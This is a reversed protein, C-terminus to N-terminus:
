NFLREVEIYNLILYPIFSISTAVAAWILWFYNIFIINLLINLIISLLLNYARKSALWNYDLVAWFLLSFSFVVAYPFLLYLIKVSEVYESGFLLTILYYGLIYITAWLILYIYLNFRFLKYFFSKLQKKNENNLKAFIPMAWMVLIISIHPFKTVIQKAVSYIAVESDWLMLWIIITDIEIVVFFWASILFLPISYSFVKSIYSWSIITRNLKGFKMLLIYIWILTTLFLSLNFWNIISVFSDWISFLFIIFLVKLFNEFFTIIFNLKINHLGNFVEKLFEVIGSLIIAPISLILLFSLWDKWLFIEIYDSFIFILLCFIISFVLRLILASFIVSFVESTNNYEASFKRISVNIWFYSLLLLINFISFFFSRYWFREISLARALYINILFFGIFSFGKSLTSWITEKIIKNKLNSIMM